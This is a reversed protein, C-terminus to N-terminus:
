SMRMEVVYYVVSWFVIVIGGFCTLAFDIELKKKFGAADYAAGGAAKVAAIASSIETSMAAIKSASLRRFEKISCISSVDDEESVETRVCLFLRSRM